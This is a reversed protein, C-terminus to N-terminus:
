ARPEGQENVTVTPGPQKTMQVRHEQGRFNYTVDWYTPTTSPVSACKQVDRMQAQQQAGAIRPVNAGLAGGAAAGGVTGITSGDGIQHGLIGGVVAGIVAGPVSLGRQSQPVQEKEVWCRQGAAAVVARASTVNAEYLRESNRRRYDRGDHAADPEPAYRNDVIRANGAVQRVSSVRDNLGLSALTPYRGARLVVCRGQFRAAECIEWRRGVVEISSARDNFGFREFNRVQKDTTFQQGAFNEREYFTIRPAATQAAALTSLVLAALALAPKTYANM